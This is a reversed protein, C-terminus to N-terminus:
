LYVRTTYSTVLIYLYRKKWNWCVGAPKWSLCFLLTRGREKELDRERERQWGRERKRESFSVFCDFYSTDRQIPRLSTIEEENDMDRKLLRIDKQLDECSGHSHQSYQCLHIMWSYKDDRSWHLHLWCSYLHYFNHQKWIFTISIFLERRQVWVCVPCLYQHQSLWLRAEWYVISTAEHWLLIPCVALSYCSPFSSLIRAAHLSSLSHGLAALCSICDFAVLRFLLVHHSRLLCITASSSYFPM